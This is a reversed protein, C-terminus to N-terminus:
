YLAPLMHKAVMYTYVFAGLGALWLVIAAPKGLGPKLAIVGLLVYMVLGFVKTIVWGDFVPGTMFVMGLGTGLLILMTLSASALAAKGTVAPNNTMMWFGRILFIALSLFAIIVHTKALLTMMDM